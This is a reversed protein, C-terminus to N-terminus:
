EDGGGDLAARVDAIRVMRPQEQPDNRYITPVAALRDDIVKRVAAITAELRRVTRFLEDFEAQTAEDVRLWM